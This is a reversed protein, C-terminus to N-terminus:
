STFATLGMAKEDLGIQHYADKIVLKSFLNSECISNIINFIPQIAYLSDITISNLETFDVYLDLRDDIPKVYANSSYPSHSYRILDANLYEDIKQGLM